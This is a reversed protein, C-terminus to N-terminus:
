GKVSKLEVFFALFIAIGGVTIALIFAQNLFLMYAQLVGPLDAVSVFESIHMVGAAIIMLPSVDPV